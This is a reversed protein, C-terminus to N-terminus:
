SPHFDGFLAACTPPYSEKEREEVRPSIGLRVTPWSPVIIAFGTDHTEYAVSIRREKESERERKRKRFALGEEYCFRYRLRTM